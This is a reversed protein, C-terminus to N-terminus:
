RRTRRGATVATIPEAVCAAGYRGASSADDEGGGFIRPVLEESFAQDSPM